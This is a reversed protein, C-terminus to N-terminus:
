VVLEVSQGRRLVSSHAQSQFQLNCMPSWEIRSLHAAGAFKALHALPMGLVEVQAARLAHTMGDQEFALMM